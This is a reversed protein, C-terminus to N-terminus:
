HFKWRMEVEGTIDRHEDRGGKLSIDDSLMYEVEFRTDESLNFNNQIMARWRDNIDIEVTGRLGGRGTQDAFSPIFHIYRLPKLLVNVYKELFKTRKSSFILPKINQMVLAPIMTGLSEEESGVLLLAIIQETGLPPTSRIIVQHNQLSGSVHLSVMYKKIRNKAVIEILPDTTAGPSLTIIAKSIYLPRYPFLLKGTPLTATGALIPDKIPGYIRMHVRADCDLFVTNVRIPNYTSIDINCQTDLIKLTQLGGQPTLGAAERLIGSFLNDTLQTRDILIVGSLEPTGSSLYTYLLNGSIVGFLDKRINFLCQNIILPLQAHFPHWSDDFFLTAKRCVIDGEYLQTRAYDMIIAKNPIDFSCLADLGTLCIYTQPIRITGHELKTKLKIQNNAYLGYLKLTGQGQLDVNLLNKILPLLPKIELTGTYRTPGNKSQLSIIPEKKENYLSANHLQIRPHLSASISYSLTNFTGDINLAHTDAVLSGQMIEQRENKEHSIVTKYHAHLGTKSTYSANLMLDKPKILLNPVRATNLQSSNYFNLLGNGAATDFKWNSELTVDNNKYHILGTWIDNSNSFTTALLSALQMAKYRLDKIGCAGKISLSNHTYHAQIRGVCDGTLPMPTTTNQALSLLYYLPVRVTAQASITNKSIDVRLPGIHIKEHFNQLEAQAVGHEFSGMIHCQKDNGQLQSIECFCDLTGAINELPDNYPAHLTCNIRGHIGNFIDRRAYKMYGSLLALQLSFGGRESAYSGDFGIDIDHHRIPDHIELHVNCLKLSNLELMIADSFSSLLKLHPMIALTNNELKSYAHIDELSMNM